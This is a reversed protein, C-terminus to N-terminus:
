LSKELDGIKQLLTKDRGAKARASQLKAKSANKDNHLADAEANAWLAHAEQGNVMYAKGLLHWAFHNNHDKLIIQNLYHIAEPINKQKEVLLHALSLKLYVADKGNKPKEKVARMLTAIAEDTKGADMLLQSKLELMYPNNPEDKLTHNLESLAKPTESPMRGYAVSRAYFDNATSGGFRKIVHTPDMTFGLIKARIRNFLKTYHAKKPWNGGPFKQDAEQVDKQVAQIRDETLPHDMFYPNLDPTGYAKQLKQLFTLLGTSPVGAKALIQIAEADAAKELHQMNKMAAGMYATQGGTVGAILPSADKAALAAIGGLAFAVAATLFAKDEGMAAQVSHIGKGHAIEHAIVGLFEEVNDCMRFLGSFIVFEGGPGSAANVSSNSLLIIKPVFSAKQKGGAKKGSAQLLDN